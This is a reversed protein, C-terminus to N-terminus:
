CCDDHPGAQVEVPIPFLSSLDESVLPQAVAALVTLGFAIALAVGTRRVYRRLSAM